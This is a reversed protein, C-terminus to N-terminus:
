SLQYLLPPAEWSSILVQERDIATDNLPGDPENYGADSRWYLQVFGVSRIEEAQLPDEMQTRAAGRGM